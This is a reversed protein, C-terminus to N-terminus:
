VCVQGYTIALLLCLAAEQNIDKPTYAVAGQQQKYAICSMNSDGNVIHRRGVGGVPPLKLPPDAASGNYLLQIGLSMLATRKANGKDTALFGMIQSRADAIGKADMKQTRAAVTM